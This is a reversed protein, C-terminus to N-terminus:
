KADKTLRALNRNMEGLQFAIYGLANAVQYEVGPPNVGVNAIGFDQQMHM